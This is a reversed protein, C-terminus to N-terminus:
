LKSNLSVLRLVSMSSQYMDTSLMTFLNSSVLYDFDTVIVTSDSHLNLGIDKM